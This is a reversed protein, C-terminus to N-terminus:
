MTNETWILGVPLSSSLRLECRRFGLSACSVERLHVPEESLSSVLAAAISRSQRLYVGLHFRQEEWPQDEPFVISLFYRLPFHEPRCPWDLQFAVRWINERTIALFICTLFTIIMLFHQCIDGVRFWSCMGTFSVTSYTNIGRRSWACLNIHM